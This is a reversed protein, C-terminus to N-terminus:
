SPKNDSWESAQYGIGNLCYGQAYGSGCGDDVTGYSNSKTFYEWGVGKQYGGAYNNFTGSSENSYTDNGANSPDWIEYVHNTGDASVAGKSHFYFCGYVCSPAGDDDKISPCAASKAAPKVAERFCQADM